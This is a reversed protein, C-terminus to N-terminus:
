KLHEAKYHDFMSRLEIIMEHDTEFVTDNISHVIRIERVSNTSFVAESQLLSELGFKSELLVYESRAILDIVIQRTVGPYIDSNLSPTYFIGDKIWFLNAITTESVHDDMTLLVADDAGSRNVERAANIFNLGNSLKFKRTLAAEPIARSEAVKLECTPSIDPIPTSRVIWNGKVSDTQYGREGERWCQIRVVSDSDIHDNMSLYETLLSRFVEAEFKLDINLYALAANLKDLHYDLHLFQSQYNRFTAFCGDGYLFGRNSPSLNLESDNIIEGNYIILASM